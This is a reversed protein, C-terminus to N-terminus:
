SYVTLQTDNSISKLIAALSRLMTSHYDELLSDWCRERLEETMSMYMFFALDIAPTAYRNEQFDFMKLAIPKGTDDLKFLVNNRNYDGHLIASFVDDRALLKQMLRIPTAEYRQRLQEMDQKFSLKELLEPHKDLYSYWRDAGLRLLVDYSTFTKDGHVYDLPTIGDILQQLRPDNRIRLAYTCAHFSAINRAMLRLHTEELDLRPGAVYGLPSINELVLMTEYQDSYSPFSGAEGFYVGPCWDAQVETGALLDRFVPLVHTYIYIENGFQIKALSSERFEDSGKMVKVMLHLRRVDSGDKKHYQFSLKHITSMFGDLHEPTTLEVESFVGDDELEPSHVLIQKPLEEKLFAAERENSM